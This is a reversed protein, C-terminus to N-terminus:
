CQHVVGRVGNAPAGTTGKGEDGLMCASAAQLDSADVKREYGVQLPDQEGPAEFGLLMFYGNKRSDTLALPPSAILNHYVPSPPVEMVMWALGVAGIGVAVLAVCSLALGVCLLVISRTTSFCSGIFSSIGIRVRAVRAAFRPRPRPSTLRDRTSVQSKEGTSDFLVDVASAAVSFASEPKSHISEVGSDQWTASSPPPTNVFTISESARVWEPRTDEQPVVKGVIPVVAEVVPARRRLFRNGDM